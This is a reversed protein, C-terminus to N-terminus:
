PLIRKQDLFNSKQRRFTTKIGDVLSHAHDFTRKLVSNDSPDFPCLTSPAHKAPRPDPPPARPPGPTPRPSRPMHGGPAYARASQRKKSTVEPFFASPKTSPIEKM